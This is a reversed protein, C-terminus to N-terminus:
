GKRRKGLADFGKGFGTLSIRVKNAKGAVNFFTVSAEKGKRFAEVLQQKMELLGLCGNGDCRQLPVKLQDYGEVDVLLGPPLLVGLPVLLTLVPEDKKEVYGVATLMVRESRPEAGEKGEINLIASQVLRCGIKGDSDDSDPCVLAWDDFKEPAPASKADAAKKEDAQPAAAKSAGTTAKKEQADVSAVAEARHCGILSSVLLAVAGAFVCGFGAKRISTGM